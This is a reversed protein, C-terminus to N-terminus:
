TELILIWDESVAKASSAIVLLLATLRLGSSQDITIAFYNSKHSTMTATYGLAVGRVAYIWAALSSVDDSAQRSLM